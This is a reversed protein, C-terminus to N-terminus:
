RSAVKAAGFFQGLGFKMMVVMLSGVFVILLSPVNVFVLLDGGLLMSVLVIGFAGVIGIITALDM